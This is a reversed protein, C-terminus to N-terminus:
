VGATMDPDRRVVLPQDPLRERPDRLAQQPALLVLQLHEEAHPLLPTVLEGRLAVPQADVDRVALVPVRIRHAPQLLVRRHGPRDRTRRRSAQEAAAVSASRSLDSEIRRNLSASPSHTKSDKSVGGPTANNSWALAKNGSFPRPGNGLSPLGSGSSGARCGPSSRKPAPTASAIKPPSLAPCFGTAAAAANSSNRRASGFWCARPVTTSRRASIPPAPSTSRRIADTVAPWGGRSRSAVTARHSQRCPVRRATTFAPIPRRPTAPLSISM